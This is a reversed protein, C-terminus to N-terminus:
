ASAREGQWEDFTQFEKELEEDTYNLYPVGKRALLRVFESKRLSMLEAAKGASIRKELHLSLVSFEKIAEVASSRSFGLPAFLDQPIAVELEITVM